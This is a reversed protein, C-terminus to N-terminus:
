IWIRRPRRPEGSREGSNTPRPPRLDFPSPPPAPPRPRQRRLHRPLEGARRPQPPRPRDASASVATPPRRASAVLRRSRAVPLRAPLDAAYPGRPGPAPRAPRRRNPPPAAVHRSTIPQPRRRPDTRGSRVRGAASLPSPNPNSEAEKEEQEPADSCGAKGEAVDAIASPLRRREPADYCEAEYAVFSSLRRQEPQEPM